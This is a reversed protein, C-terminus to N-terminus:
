LTRNLVNEYSKSIIESYQYLDNVESLPIKWHRQNKNKVNQLLVNNQIEDSLGWMDLSFWKAKNTIKLRCFDRGMDQREDTVVTLYNSTRRQLGLQDINMNASVLIKQIIDMAEKEYSTIELNGYQYVSNHDDSFYNETYVEGCYEQIIDYFVNEPLIEINFGKLQLSEAKKQKSSKGDKLSKKYDNNGLVLYDTKQTVSDGCTGGLNLVIQMAEKRPMKELTGTFVCLKQYLPNDTDFESVTAQMNQTKLTSRRFLNTFADYSDYKDLVDKKIAKYCNLTSMCDDLARHSTKSEIGLFNIMDALRHRRLEPYLKKAIRMVDIYDYSFHPLKSNVFNDYLFNVDFSVNYGMLITDDLFHYLLPLVDEIKPQDKLMENTIGTLNTIFPSIEHNPNVLSQFTDVINDDSVKIAAIEIINDYISSLGTTELDIVVFDDPFEVISKGKGTREASNQFSKLFSLYAEM